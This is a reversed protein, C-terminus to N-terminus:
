AFYQRAVLLGRACVIRSLKLIRFVTAALPLFQFEALSKASTGIRAFLVPNLKM